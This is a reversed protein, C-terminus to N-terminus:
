DNNESENIEIKIKNFADLEGKHRAIDLLQNIKGEFNDPIVESVKKLDEITKIELNIILNNINPNVSEKEEMILNFDNFLNNEKM